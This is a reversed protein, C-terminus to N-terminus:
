KVSGSGILISDAPNASIIKTGITPIKAAIPNTTKTTRLTMVPNGPATTFFLRVMTIMTPKLRNPSHAIDLIEVVIFKWSTEQASSWM